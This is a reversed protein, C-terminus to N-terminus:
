LETHGLILFPELILVASKFFIAAKLIPFAQLLFPKKGIITIPFWEAGSIGEM